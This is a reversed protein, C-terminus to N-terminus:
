AVCLGTDVVVAGSTQNDVLAPGNVLGSLNPKARKVSSLEAVAAAMADGVAKRQM